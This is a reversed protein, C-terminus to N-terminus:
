FITLLKSSEFNRIELIVRFPIVQRLLLGYRIAVHAFALESFSLKRTVLVKFGLLITTKMLLAVISLVTLLWLIEAKAM